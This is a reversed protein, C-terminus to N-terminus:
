LILSHSKLSHSKDRSQQYQGRISDSLRWDVNPNWVQKGQRCSCSALSKHKEPMQGITPACAATAPANGLATTAVWAFGWKPIKEKPRQYKGNKQANGSPPGSLTRRCWQTCFNGSATISASAHHRIPYYGEVGYRLLEAFLVLSFVPTCLLCIALHRDDM